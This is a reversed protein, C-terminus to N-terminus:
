NGRRGQNGPTGSKGPLEVFSCTDLGAPRMEVTLLKNSRSRREIRVKANAPCFGEYKAVLRYDGGPVSKLEFHGSDDTETAAILKHDTETFIGICVKPVGIGQADKATGRIAAVPLPGYDTQNRSEYTLNKCTSGIEEGTAILGFALCCIATSLESRM